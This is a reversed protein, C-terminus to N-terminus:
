SGLSFRFTHKHPQLDHPPLIPAGSTPSGLGHQLADLTLWVRDGPHLDAPHEAAALEATTWRRVTLAVHPDGTLRLKGAAGSLEAWRVDGRAGNEQPYLYPVQLDDITSTYRGIRAASRSDPYAQGPGLGFWTMTHLGGPLGFTVGLRAWPVTWEGLPEVDVEAMLREGDSRWRYTTLVRADTAAAGVMTTVVLEEGIREVAVTRYRLRDLGANAWRTKRDLTTADWTRADHQTPARWLELPM